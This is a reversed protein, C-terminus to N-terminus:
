AQIPPQRRAPRPEGTAQSTERKSNTILDHAACLRGKLRSLSKGSKKKGVGGLCGGQESQFLMDGEKGRM